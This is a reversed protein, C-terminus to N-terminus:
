GTTRGRGMPSRALVAAALKRTREAYHTGRLVQAATREAEETALRSGDPTALLSRALIKQIKSASPDQVVKGALLSISGDTTTATIADNSKPLTKAVATPPAALLAEHVDVSRQLNLWFEPGNGFLQGLKLAMSPSLSRRERLLENVSQRSVAIATAVEKVTMGYEPLFEERLIEGPHIPRRQLRSTNPISM